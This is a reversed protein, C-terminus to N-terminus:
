IYRPKYKITIDVSSKDVTIINAGPKLSPFNWMETDAYKNVGDVTVIGDEGNIIIKKNAVLNKIKIPDEDFGNLTFDVLSISPTIEVIAPTETNGAANITKSTIRNMIETVENSFEYGIFTLNKKYMYKSVTKETLNESLIVKYKHSYGDLSLTVENILKSMFNSINNLISDRSIGKFALELDIVKFKKKNKIFVPSISSNLWESSNSLEQTKIDVKLLKANFVSIDISNILM